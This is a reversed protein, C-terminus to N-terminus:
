RIGNFSIAIAIEVNVVVLMIWRAFMLLSALRVM